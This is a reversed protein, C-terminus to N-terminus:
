TRTHQLHRLDRVVASVQLQRVEGGRLACAKRTHARYRLTRHRVGLEEHGRLVAIRAHHHRAAPVAQQVQRPCHGRKRRKDSMECAAALAAGFSGRTLPEGEKHTTFHVHSCKTSQYENSITYNHPPRPSRRLPQPRNPLPYM